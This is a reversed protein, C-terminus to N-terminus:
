TISILINESYQLACLDVTTEIHRHHDYNNYSDELGYVYIEKITHSWLANDTDCFVDYDDGVSSIILHQTNSEFKLAINNTMYINGTAECVEQETTNSFVDTVNEYQCDIAVILSFSSLLRTQDATEKVEKQMVMISGGRILTLFDSTTTTMTVVDGEEGELKFGSWIEFWSGPPLWVHVHSQSPTLNPVILLSDGVSFQSTLDKLSDSAPFQYFMPRLLPGEQLVTYFYPLLSLRHNLANIVLARDIGQFALPHRPISKSHIKVMPMYTAAMYWKICLEIQTTSNYNDTDGCIPSSWLWHGSIGGLAIDVLEKRLNTWSTIINQRNIMVDGKMLQDSAWAPINDSGFNVASIFNNAYDNHNYFYIEGNPRTANWQPTENFATEFNKNFYPLSSNILEHDKVSEDLPWINEIIVGDLAVNYAWISQLFEETINEYDPYLVDYNGIIGKYIDVSNPKRIMFEHFHQAIDICSENSSVSSKTDEVDTNNHIGYIIHPSVHGVLKKNANKILEGGNDFYLGSDLCVENKFVIPAIGCHSEYPIKKENALSIFENLDNYAEETTENMDNCIHAGLMWYELKDYSGILGRVDKMVDSPKPGVFVHLKLGDNTISRVVINNEGHISIETPGKAEVMIGHYSSNLKAYILPVTNLGGDHNYIIKVTGERLPVEGLGYISENTVRFAIEWINDSAILPGRLTSFLRGQPGNISIDLEAPLVEYTYTKNELRQGDLSMRTSDYFTLSMHTQSIEDVSLKITKLSEQLKFPVTPIRPMLVVDEAWNQHFIYSFRSPYRHYCVNHTPDYCCQSHCEEISVNGLGCLLRASLQLVCSGSSFGDTPPRDATVFIYQYLLVPILIALFLLGVAVRLPRNLFIANYWKVKKAVKEYEHVYYDHLNSNDDKKGDAYPIM